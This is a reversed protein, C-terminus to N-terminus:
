WRLRADGRRFPRPEMSAPEHAELEHPTSCTEVGSLAHSWQLSKDMTFSGFELHDGRRFPRPEMSAPVLVRSGRGRPPDGRRFPRPEMSADGKPLSDDGRVETEVGSLAHSWQLTKLMAGLLPVPHRRWAQFPTAGNFSRGGLEWNGAYGRRWAQFPTAGNFSSQEDHAESAPMRDGRRFPRPEMSALVVRGPGAARGGTEVGSLAHSWQLRGPNQGSATWGQTEVGSLAHSWQLPFEAVVPRTCWRVGINLRACNRWLLSM